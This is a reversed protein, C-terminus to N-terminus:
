RGATVYFEPNSDALAFLLIILPLSQFLAVFGALDVAGQLRLGLSQLVRSTRGTCYAISCFGTRKSAISADQKLSSGDCWHFPKTDCDNCRRPKFQWCFS